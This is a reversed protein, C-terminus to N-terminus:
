IMTTDLKFRREWIMPANKWNNINIKTRNVCDPSNYIQSYLPADHMEHAHQVPLHDSHGHECNLLPEQILITECGYRQARIAIDAHSLCTVEFQCDWGGLNEYFKRNMFGANFIWWEDPVYPSRPYANNLRYYDDGHPGNGGELYKNVIVLRENKDNILNICKKFTESLYVADDAAWTIWEGEALSAAICSARVPSGFDKVYKVNKFLQLSSSLSYPSCIILEFDTEAPISNYLKKWNNPRIGPLIISLKM